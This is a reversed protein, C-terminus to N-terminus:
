YAAPPATEAKSQRLQSELALLRTLMTNIAAGHLNLTELLLSENLGETRTLDSSQSSVQEQDRSMDDEKEVRAVNNKTRM